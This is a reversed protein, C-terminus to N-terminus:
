TVVVEGLISGRKKESLTKALMNQSMSRNNKGIAYISKRFRCAQKRSGLWSQVRIQLDHTFTLTNSYGPLVPQLCVNSM